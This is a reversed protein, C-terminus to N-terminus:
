ELTECVETLAKAYDFAKSKVTLKTVGICMIAISMIMLWCTIYEPYPSSFLGCISFREFRVVEQVCIVIYLILAYYKGGYLNRWYNYEKLEQYVRPYADRNNNAFIRLYNMASEYIVDSERKEEEASEPLHIDSCKKNLIKHYRVKTLKDLSKDSFRLIITTPKGGLEKYMSEEYKKGKERAVKSVFSLFIVAIFLYFSCDMVHGVTVGKVIGWLVVPLLETLVPMVRAHFVFDDFFEKLAKM